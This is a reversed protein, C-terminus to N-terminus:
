AFFCTFLVIIQGWLQRAQDPRQTFRPVLTATLGGGVLLNILLDPVTLMLVVVDAEATSGFSSAVLAERAFGALRGLLVGVNVALSSLLIARLM